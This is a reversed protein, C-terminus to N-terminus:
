GQLRPPQAPATAAAIAVSHNHLELKRAMSMAVILTQPNHMEVEHSLPPQLGATFAQVREEEDLRSIRGGVGHAQVGHAQGHSQLPYAAQILPELARRLMEM